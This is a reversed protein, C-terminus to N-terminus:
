TAPPAYLAAAKFTTNWADAGPARFSGYHHVENVMFKGHFALRSSVPANPAAATASTLAYPVAIQSPLSVVDGIEIDSRLVTQFTIDGATIWTPQGILDQFAVSVVRPPQTADFATIINGRRTLLVGPYHSDISKTGLSQTYQQIQEALGTLSFSWFGYDSPTQLSPSVSVNVTCGPFAGKLASMLTDGFSAGAKWYFIIPEKQRVGMMVVMELVQNTGQWNGYAQYIFGNLIEGAQSSNALPLGVGMGASLSINGGSLNAAQSLMPLGVGYVRVMANGQPTNFPAVPADIEIQLANPDPKGTVSGDSTSAFTPGKGSGKQLTLGQPVYVKGAADSITLSYYRM